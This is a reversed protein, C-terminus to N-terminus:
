FGCFSFQLILARAQIGLLLKKRWHDYVGSLNEARGGLAGPSYFLLRYGLTPSLLFLSPWLVNSAGEGLLTCLATPM